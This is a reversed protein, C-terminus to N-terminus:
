YAVALGGDRAMDAVARYGGSKPDVEICNAHGIRDWTDLKHGKGKLAEQLDMPVASEILIRDPLWQHHMRPGRVAQTITRDHDVIQLLIQGVTTSITPGGPSGLVARLKGDKVVITPTMSSLMRKGPEIGNQPGQVLGFMNPSGPKVTFDDMENNLILGTGPIMLKSGFGGNLTFTNAVANGEDDVVSFHTTQLSESAPPLGSGVRDSPTAHERDIDDMRRGIYTRDTLQAVPVDVFDPDGLLLNRDAYIRRLAEAYLHASMPSQWPLKWMELHESAALLQRLVIGGASPPPMALIEHGRYEFRLPTRVKAVYNALDDETWIGGMAQVKAALDRAFPGEYFARPGGDAIIELTKALEPQVFLSGEPYPKGSADTFYKASDLFGLETMRKVAGEIDEAHFSDIVHGEKALRIAPAIVRAWPLKGHKHHALAFGAVNGPIGAALAGIRSKDTPTGAADLYMDRSAKGPAVERYDIAFTEGNALRVVMFGGGGLNGASPHTVALAFGVAVAADIANGGAQLIELGAMSANAEASTVAGHVGVAEDVDEKRHEPLSRAKDAQASGDPNEHHGHRAARPECAGGIALLGALVVGLGLRTSPRRARAGGQGRTLGRDAASQSTESDSM